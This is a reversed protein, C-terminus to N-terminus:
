CLLLASSDRRVEKNQIPLGYRLLSEPDKNVRSGSGSAMEKANAVFGPSDCGVNFHGQDVSASFPSAWVAASLFTATLTKGLAGTLDSWENSQKSVALLETGSKVEMPAQRVSFAAHSQTTFAYACGNSALLAASLAAQLKM